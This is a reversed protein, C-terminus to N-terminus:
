VVFVLVINIVDIFSEIVRRWFIFLVRTQLFFFFHMCNKKTEEWNFFGMEEERLSMPVFFM